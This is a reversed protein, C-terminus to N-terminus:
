LLFFNFTLLIAFGMMALAAQLDRFGSEWLGVVYDNFGTNAGIDLLPYVGVKALALLVFPALFVGCLFAVKTKLFTSQVLFNKGHLIIYLPCSVCLVAGYLKTHIAALITMGLVVIQWRTDRRPETVVVETLYFALLIFAALLSDPYGSWFQYLVLPNLMVLTLELSISKESFGVRSNLKTLVLSATYLFFVTCIASTIVVAADANWLWTLPSALLPFLIPKGGTWAGDRVVAYLDFGHAVIDKSIKAYVLANRAVPWRFNLVTLLTGLLTFSLLTAHTAKWARAASGESPGAFQAPGPSNLLTQSDDM